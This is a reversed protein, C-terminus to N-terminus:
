FKNTYNWLKAQMSLNRTVMQSDITFNPELPFCKFTKNKDKYSKYKM